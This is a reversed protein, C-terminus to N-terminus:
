DLQIIETTQQPQEKRELGWSAVLLRKDTDFKKTVILLSLDELEKLKDLSQGSVIPTIGSLYTFM